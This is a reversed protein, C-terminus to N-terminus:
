LIRLFPDMYIPGQSDALVIDYKFDGALVAPGANIEVEGSGDETGEQDSETEKELPEGIFPTRPFIWPRGLRPFLISFKVPGRVVMGRFKAIWRVVNGREVTALLPSVEVIRREAVAVRIVADAM